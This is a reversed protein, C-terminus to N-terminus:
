YDDVETWDQIYISESDKNWPKVKVLDEFSCRQREALWTREAQGFEKARLWWSSLNFYKGFNNQIPGRDQQM